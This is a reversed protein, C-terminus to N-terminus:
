VLRIGILSVRAARRATSLVLLASPHKRLLHAIYRPPAVAEGRELCCRLRGSHLRAPGDARKPLGSSHDGRCLPMPRIRYFMSCWGRAAVILLPSLDQSGKESASSRRVLYNQKREVCAVDNGCRRAPPRQVDDEDSSYPHRTTPPQWLRLDEGLLWSCTLHHLAFGGCWRHHPLFANVYAARRARGHRVLGRSVRSRPRGIPAGFRKTGVVRVACVHACM